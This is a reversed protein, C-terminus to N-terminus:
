RDVVSLFSGRARDCGCRPVSQAISRERTAARRSRRPTSRGRRKHDLFQPLRKQPLYAGFLNGLVIQPHTWYQVNLPDLLHVSQKKSDNGDELVLLAGYANKGIILQSQIIPPM